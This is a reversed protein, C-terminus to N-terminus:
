ESAEIQGVGFVSEFDSEVKSKQYKSFLARSSPRGLVAREGTGENSELGNMKTVILASRAKAAM